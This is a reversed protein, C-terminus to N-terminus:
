DQLTSKGSPLVDYTGGSWSFTVAGPPQTGSVPSILAPAQNGNCTLGRSVTFHGHPSFISPCSAFLAEVYWDIAGSPLPLIQSNNISRALVVPPGGDVSIWIRYATANAVSTWTLLVPSGATANDAPTQLTLSGGCSPAPVTFTFSQSPADPCAAFMTDVRWTIAGTGVLRTVTTDTTTAALDNGLYLKYGIAGPVSNWRFTVPSTSITAGNAPAILQAATTACTAGVAVSFTGFRSFTSPCNAFQAEVFWAINGQPFPLAVQTATTTTGVLSAAGGNLAVFVRYGSSGAVATWALTVPSALGTTGPSPSLLTPSTPNQPCSATGGIAMFHFHASTAITPCSSDGIADVYWDVSGAPLNTTYESDTTLAIINAAGGNFSAWLRYSRAGSVDNWDFQVPSSVNVAANSPAVLQPAGAPCAAFAAPVSLVLILAALVLKRM